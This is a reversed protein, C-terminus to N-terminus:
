TQRDVSAVTLYNRPSTAALHSLAAYKGCFHGAQHGFTTPHEQCPQLLQSSIFIAPSMLHTIEPNGQHQGRGIM